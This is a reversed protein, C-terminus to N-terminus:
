DAWASRSVHGEVTNTDEEVHGLIKVRKRMYDLERDDHRPLYYTHVDSFEASM